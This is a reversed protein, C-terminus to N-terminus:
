SIVKSVYHFEIIGKMSYWTVLCPREYNRTIQEILYALPREETEIATIRDYETQILPQTTYTHITFM